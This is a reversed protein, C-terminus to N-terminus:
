QDSINSSPYTQIPKSQQYSKTLTLRSYKRILKLQQRSKALTLRRPNRRFSQAPGNACAENETTIESLPVFVRGMLFREQEGLIKDPINASSPRKFFNM